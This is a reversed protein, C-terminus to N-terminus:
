SHLTETAAGSTQHLSISRLISPQVPQGGFMRLYQILASAESQPNVLDLGFSTCDFTVENPTLGLQAPYILVGGPAVHELWGRADRVVVHRTRRVTFLRSLMQM